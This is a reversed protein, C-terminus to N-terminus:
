NLDLHKYLDVEYIVYINSSKSSNLQLVKEVKRGYSSFAWCSNKEDCIVLYHIKSSVSDQVIGGKDEIMKAIEKRSNYLSNGTICFVKQTVLIEKALTDMKITEILKSNDSDGMDSCVIDSLKIIKKYNVIRNEVSDRVLEHLEDFLWTKSLFQNENLWNSLYGFEMDNIVGDSAIGHLLGTLVQTATTILDYYPNDRDLYQNCLWIIDKAEETTIINDAIVKQLNSIFVKYPYYREFSRAADIWDKLLNVELQHVIHDSEVGLMMGKLINLDKELQQKSCYVQYNDRDFAEITNKSREM